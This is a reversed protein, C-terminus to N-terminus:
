LAENVYLPPIRPRVIGYALLFFLGRVLVQAVRRWFIMAVSYGLRTGIRDILRGMLLIGVAYAAQFAFVLNGYNIENWGLDHQLTTKLVGLVQRDMYNKTVGFLLLACIIWRFYGVRQVVKAAVSPSALTASTAAPDM